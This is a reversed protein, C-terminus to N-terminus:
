RLQREPTTRSLYTDIAQQHLQPEDIHNMWDLCLERNYRIVRSNRRKYHIGEIWDQRRRLSKLTHPSYGLLRAIEHKTCFSYVM